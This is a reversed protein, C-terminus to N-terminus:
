FSTGTPKVGSDHPFILACPTLFACPAVPSAFVGIPKCTNRVLLLALRVQGPSNRYSKMEPWFTPSKPPETALLMYLAGCLLIEM